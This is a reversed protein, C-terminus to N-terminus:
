WRFRMGSVSRSMEFGGWWKGDRDLVNMRLLDSLYAEAYFIM